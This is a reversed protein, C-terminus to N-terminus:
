GGGKELSAWLAAAVRPSAGTVGLLGLGSIDADPWESAADGPACHIVVAAALGLRAAQAVVSRAAAPLERWPVSSVGVCVSGAAALAEFTLSCLAADVMSAWDCLAIVPLGRGQAARVAGYGVAGNPVDEILVGHLGADKFGACLARVGENVVDPAVARCDALNVAGVAFPAPARLALRGAARGVRELEATECAEGLMRGLPARTATVAAEAGAAVDLAQAALVTEPECLCWLGDALDGGLVPNLDGSLSVPLGPGRLREAFTAAAAADADFRGDDLGMGEFLAMAQAVTLGDDSEAM